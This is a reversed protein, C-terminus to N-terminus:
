KEGVAFGVVAVVFFVIIGVGLPENQSLMFEFINVFVVTSFVVAILWMWGNLIRWVVNM